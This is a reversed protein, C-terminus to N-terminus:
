INKYASNSLKIYKNIKGGGELIPEHKLCTRTCDNTDFETCIATGFLTEPNSFLINGEADRYQHFYYQTDKNDVNFDPNIEIREKTRDINLIYEIQRIDKVYPCRYRSRFIWSPAGSSECFNGPTKVFEFKADNLIKKGDITDNHCSLSLKNANPRNQYMFYAVINRATLDTGDHIFVVVCQNRLLDEKKEFWLKQGANSYCIVYMEYMRTLIDPKLTSTTVTTKNLKITEETM